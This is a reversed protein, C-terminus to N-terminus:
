IGGLTTFFKEQAEVYEETRKLEFVRKIAKSRILDGRQLVLGLDRFMAVKALARVDVDNLALNGNKDIVQRYFEQHSKFCNLLSTKNEVM